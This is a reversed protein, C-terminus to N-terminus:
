VSTSTRWIEVTEDFRWSEIRRGSRALTGSRRRPPTARRPRPSKFLNSLCVGRPTLALRRVGFLASLRHAEFAHPSKADADTPSRRRRRRLCCAESRRARRIQACRGNNRAMTSLFEETAFERRAGPCAGITAPRNTAPVIASLTHVVIEDYASVAFNGARGRLTRKRAPPGCCADTQESSYRALSWGGGSDGESPRLATAGLPLASPARTRFGSNGEDFSRKVRRRGVFTTM